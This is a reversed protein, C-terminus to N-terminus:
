PTVCHKSHHQPQQTVYLRYQSQLVVVFSPSASDAPAADQVADAHVLPLTFMAACHDDDSNKDPYFMLMGRVLKLNLQLCHGQESAFFGTSCYLTCM